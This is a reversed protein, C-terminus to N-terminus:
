CYPLQDESIKSPWKGHQVQLLTNIKSEKTVQAATTSIEDTTMIVHVKEASDCKSFSSLQLM